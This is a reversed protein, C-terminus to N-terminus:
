SPSPRNDVPGVGDLKKMATATFHVSYRALDKINKEEKCNCQVTTDSCSAVIPACQVIALTSSGATHSASRGTQSIM